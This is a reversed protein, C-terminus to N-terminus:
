SDCLPKVVVAPIWGRLQHNLIQAYLYYKYQNRAHGPEGTGKFIGVYIGPQVALYGLERVQEENVEHGDYDTQVLAITSTSPFPRPNGDRPANRWEDVHLSRIQSEHPIDKFSNSRDLSLHFQAGRRGDTQEVLRSAHMWNPIQVAHSSWDSHVKLPLIIRNLTGRSTFLEQSVGVDLTLTWLAVTRKRIREGYEQLRKTIRQRYEVLQAQQQIYSPSRICGRFLTVHCPVELIRSGIQLKRAYIGIYVQDWDFQVRVDSGAELLTLPLQKHTDLFRAITRLHEAEIGYQLSSDTSM